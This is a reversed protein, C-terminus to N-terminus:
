SQHHWGHYQEHGWQLGTDWMAQDFVVGTGPDQVDPEIRFKRSGNSDNKMYRLKIHKRNLFLASHSYVDGELMPNWILYVMGWPSMYKLLNPNGGQKSLGGFAKVYDETNYVFRDKIIKDVDRIYSSGCYAFLETTDQQAFVQELMDDLEVEDLTSTYYKVNTTVAGRFGASYTINNSSDDYAAGNYIWKREEYKSIEVIKENVLDQFSEGNTYKEEADERGSMQVGDLGIQCYGSVETANNSRVETRAYDEKAASNIIRATAGASAATITGSSAVLRVNITTTATTNTVILMDGTSEILITDGFKCITSTGVAVSSETAAGGTLGATLTFTRALPTKQHWRFRSRSEKTPASASKDMVFFQTIPTQYDQLYVMQKDMDIAKNTSTTNASTRTGAIIAM